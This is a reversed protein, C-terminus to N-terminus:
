SDLVCSIFAVPLLVKTPMLQVMPPRSVDVPSIARVMFCEKRHHSNGQAEVAAGRCTRPLVEDGRRRYVHNSVVRYTM